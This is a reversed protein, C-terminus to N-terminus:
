PGQPIRRGGGRGGGADRDTRGINFVGRIQNPVAGSAAAGSGAATWAGAGATTPQGFVCAMGTPAQCSITVPQGFTYQPAAGM